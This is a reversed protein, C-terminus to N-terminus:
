RQPAAAARVAPPTTPPGLPRPPLRGSRKWQVRELWDFGFLRTVDPQHDAILIAAAREVSELDGSAYAEAALLEACERVLLPHELGIDMARRLARASESPAGRAALNRGVLYHGLALDPEAIVATAARGLQVVAELPANPDPPWFYARLAPGGPGTHQNAIRRAVVQRAQDDDIPLQSARELHAAVAARDDMSAALKALSLLSEARVTTSMGTTDESLARYIAASEDLSHDRFLLEALEMQHRPEDPVDSCLVLAV